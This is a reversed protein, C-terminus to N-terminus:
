PRHWMNPHEAFIKAPAKHEVKRLTIDSHRARIAHLWDNSHHENCFPKGNARAMKTAIQELVVVDTAFGRQGLIKFHNVFLNDEHESLLTSRGMMPINKNITLMPNVSKALQMQQSLRTVASLSMRTISAIQRMPVKSNMM